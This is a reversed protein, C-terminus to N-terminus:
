KFAELINGVCGGMKEVNYGGEQILLTPLLSQALLKGIRSFSELLLDFDGLPDEQFTDAGLSVVLFGPAFQQIIDMTLDLVALYQGEDAHSALPFNHNFGRGAGVGHEDAFGSFFPYVCNPDAHISIYLVQNSDYFIEQTGNGHHYDIDLIAVKSKRRLSTTAIAANNLYCYGGYINRGAHHGPPRCLAYASSEGSLIMDAGTLACYASSLAAEYTHQVIPTQADFCYYGAQYVLKTPKGQMTRVAFTDPIVGMKPKGETAWADYINELYYLYDPNHVARIPELSYQQPAVIDTFGREQLTLILKDARAPAESYPKMRDGTFEYEPAHRRHKETYIIKM